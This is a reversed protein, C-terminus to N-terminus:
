RVFFDRLRTRAALSFAMISMSRGSDGQASPNALRAQPFAFREENLMGQLNAKVGVSVSTLGDDGGKWYVM